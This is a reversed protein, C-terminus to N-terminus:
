NSFNCFLVLGWQFQARKVYGHLNYWKCVGFLKQMGCWLWSLIYWPLRVIAVKQFEVEQTSTSRRRLCECSQWLKPWNWCIKYQTGNFVFQLDYYSLTKVSISRKITMRLAKGSEWDYHCINCHKQEVQSFHTRQHTHHCRQHHNGDWSNQCCCFRSRCSESELSSSIDAKRSWWRRAM